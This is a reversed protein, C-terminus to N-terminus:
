KLAHKRRDYSTSVVTSTIKIRELFINSDRSICLFLVVTDPYTGDNGDNGIMKYLMQIVKTKNKEDTIFTTIIHSNNHSLYSAYGQTLKPCNHIFIDTFILTDCFNDYIYNVFILKLEEITYGMDPFFTDYESLPSTVSMKEYEDDYHIHFMSSDTDKKLSLPFSAVTHTSLTNQSVENTILFELNTLTTM